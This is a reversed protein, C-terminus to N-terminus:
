GSKDTSAKNNAQRQAHKETRLQDRANKAYQVRAWEVLDDVDLILNGDLTYVRRAAQTLGLRHTAQELIQSTFFRLM